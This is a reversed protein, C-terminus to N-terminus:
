GEGMKCEIFHKLFCNRHLIHGLWKGKRRTVSRLVKGEESKTM